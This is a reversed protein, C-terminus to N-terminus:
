RTVTEKTRQREVLWASAVRLIRWAALGRGVAPLLKVFTGRLVAVIGAIGAGVMVPHMRVFQAAGVMRDVMGAPTTLQQFGAALAKRQVAARASLQARRQEIGALRRSAWSM